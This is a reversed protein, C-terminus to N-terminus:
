LEPLFIFFYFSSCFWINRSSQFFLLDFCTLIKLKLKLLCFPTPYFTIIFLFGSINSSLLYSPHPLCFSSPWIVLLLHQPLRQLRDCSLKYQIQRHLLSRLFQSQSEMILLGVIEINVALDFLNVRRLIGPIDLELPKDIIEVSNDGMVNAREAGLVDVLNQAHLPGGASGNYEVLSGVFCENNRGLSSVSEWLSHFILALSRFGASGSLDLLLYPEKHM